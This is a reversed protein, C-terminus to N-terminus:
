LLREVLTEVVEFLHGVDRSALARLLQEKLVEKEIEPLHGRHLKREMRRREVENYDPYIMVNGMHGMFSVPM